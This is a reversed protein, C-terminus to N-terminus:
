SKLNKAARQAAEQTFFPGFFQGDVVLKFVNGYPFVTALGRGHVYKCLNTPKNRSPYWGQMWGDDEAIEEDDEEQIEEDEPIDEEKIEPGAYGVGGEGNCFLEEDCM